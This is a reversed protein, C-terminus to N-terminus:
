MRLVVAPCSRYPVVSQENMWEDNPRRWATLCRTKTGANPPEFGEAGALMPVRDNQSYLVFEENYGPEFVTKKAETDMNYITVQAYKFLAAADKCRGSNRTSPDM